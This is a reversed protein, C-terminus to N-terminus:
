IKKIKSTIILFSLYSFLSPYVKTKMRSYSESDHRISHNLNPFSGKVNQSIVMAHIGFNFAKKIKKSGSSYRIM